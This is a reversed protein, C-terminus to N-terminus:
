HWEFSRPDSIPALGHRVRIVILSESAFARTPRGFGVVLFVPLGEQFHRLDPGPRGHM